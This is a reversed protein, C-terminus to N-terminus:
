QNMKGVEIRSSVGRLSSFLKKLSYTSIRMIWAYPLLIPCKLLYRYKRRMVYINPFLNHFIIKKLIFTYREFTQKEYNCGSVAQIQLPFYFDDITQSGSFVEIESIGADQGRTKKLKITLSQVNEQLDFNVFTCSGDNKPEINYISFGNDFNIEIAEIHNEKSPNEYISVCSINVVNNWKLVLKKESDEKDPVWICNEFYLSGDSNKICIFDKVKYDNVYWHKGSSSSTSAFIAINDTRKHWYCVDSNLFNPAYLWAQQSSYCLLSKYILNDKLKYTKCSEPVNFVLRNEWIADPNEAELEVKITPKLPKQFYDSIGFWNNSYAYKTLLLPKYFPDEILLIKVAELTSIYTLKHDQHSDYDNVIIIEPHLDRLISLIDNRFNFRNYQNHKKEKIYIYENIENHGYTVSHGNHEINEYDDKYYLGEGEVLNDPYGLFIVHEKTIGIISLANLAESMRLGQDCEFADGNTTFVVYPEFCKDMCSAILSGAISLEDDQHPVIIVIKNM